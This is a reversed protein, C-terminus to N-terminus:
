IKMLYTQISESTVKISNLRGGRNSYWDPWHTLSANFASPRFSYWGKM